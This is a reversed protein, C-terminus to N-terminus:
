PLELPPVDEDGPDQQDNHLFRYFANFFTRVPSLPVPTATTVAWYRKTTDTLTWANFDNEDGPDQDNM